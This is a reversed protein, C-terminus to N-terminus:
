NEEDESCLLYWYIQAVGATHDQQIKMQGSSVIARGIQYYATTKDDSPMTDVALIEVKAAAAPTEGSAQTAATYKLVYTKTASVDASFVDVQFVANNVKCVSKGSTQTESNYTAGDVIKIKNSTQGSESTTSTNVIKFYGNYETGGSGGGGLQLICWQEGSSGAKWVIRATGSATSELKGDSGATPKAYEHTSDKITVKAPVIGTLVAKSLKGSNAPEACIAFPKKENSSTVKNANLTPTNYIFKNNAPTIALGTLAVASFMPLTGSDLYKIRIEGNQFSKNFADPGNLRAQNEHTWNVADSIENFTEGSVCYNQNRQYKKM